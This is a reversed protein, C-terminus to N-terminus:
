KPKPVSLSRSCLAPLTITWWRVNPRATGWGRRRRGPPGAARRSPARRARPRRCAEPRRRDHVDRRHAEPRQGAVGISAIFRPAASAPSGACCRRPRPTATGGGRRRAPRGSRCPTSRSGRRRRAPEAEVPELLEDSPAGIRASSILSLWPALGPRPPTRGAALTERSIASVRPMGLALVAEARGPVGLEAVDVRHEVEDLQEGVSVPRGTPMLDATPSRPKQCSRVSRHRVAVAADVEDGDVAALAAGAGDGSIKM